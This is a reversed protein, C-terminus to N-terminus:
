NGPKACSTGDSTKREIWSVASSVRSYVSPLPEGSTLILNIFYIYKYIWRLVSWQLITACGTGYSVVGIIEYYRFLSFIGSFIHSFLAQGGNKNRMALSGGSDGRCADGFLLAACLNNGRIQKPLNKYKHSLDNYTEFCKKQRVIRSHILMM